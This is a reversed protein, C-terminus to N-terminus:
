FRGRLGAFGLGLWPEIAAGSEPADDDLALVLGIVGVALGAGGVAFSITSVHALTTGSDIDDQAEPTCRTDLCHAEADATASLSMAGTVAGAIVGVGGVAFGAIALPVAASGGDAADAPQASAAGGAADPGTPAAATPAAEPELTVSVTRKEGEEVKVQQTARSFGDATVVVAHQGPNVKAPFRAAAAPLANGDISVSLAVDAPVGAAEIKLVPIRPQIQEALQAADARSRTFVEPENARKPYRGVRLAADLAEVLEGLEAHCRAVEVATTPVGVLADAAQYDRLAGRFDRAEYKADGSRVLARATEKEAATPPKQPQSSAPAAFTLAAIAAFSALV